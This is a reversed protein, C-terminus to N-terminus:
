KKTVLYDAKNLLNYAFFPHNANFITKVITLARDNVQMARENDGIGLYASALGNMSTALPLNYQGIENKLITTSEEYLPIALHYKKMASLNNAIYSLTGAVLANNKNFANTQIELSHNFFVKAESFNKNGMALLGKQNLIQSLIAPSATNPLQTEIQSLRHKAKAYHALITHLETIKLLSQIIATKDPERASQRKQLVAEHENLARNYEGYLMTLNALGFLNNATLKNNEDHLQKIIEQSKLFFIRANRYKGLNFLVTALLTLNRATKKHKPGYRQKDNEIAKLIYRHAKKDNGSALELKAQEYPRDISHSNISTNQQALVGRTEAEVHQITFSFLLLSLWPKLLWPFNTRVM